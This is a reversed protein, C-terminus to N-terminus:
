VTDSLAVLHWRTGGLAGLARGATGGEVTVAVAVLKAVLETSVVLKAVLKAAVVLEAVLKSAVVLKAVVKTTVVVEAAVVGVELPDRDGVVAVVVDAAAAVIGVELEKVM